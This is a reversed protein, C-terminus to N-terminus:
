LTEDYASFQKHTIKGQITRSKIIDLVACTSQVASVGHYKVSVETFDNLKRM